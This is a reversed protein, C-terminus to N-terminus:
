VEVGDKLDSLARKAQDVSAFRIFAFGKSKNTTSNRVIRTSELEGFQQFANVLDEEVTDKDLKGVYIEINKEKKNDLPDQVSISPNEDGENDTDDGESDDDSEEDDGNEKSDEEVILAIDNECPAKTSVAQVSEQASVIEATCKEGGNGGNDVPAADNKCPSKSINCEQASIVKATEGGEEVGDGKVVLPTSNDDLIKFEDAKVADTEEQASAPAAFQMISHYYFNIALM